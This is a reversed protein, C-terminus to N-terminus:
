TNNDKPNSKEYICVNWKEFVFGFSYKYEM